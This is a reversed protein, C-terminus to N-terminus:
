TCNDQTSRNAFYRDLNLHGVQPKAIFTSKLSSLFVKYIGKYKTYNDFYVVCGEEERGRERERERERERKCLFSSSFLCKM